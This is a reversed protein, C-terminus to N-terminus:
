RWGGAKRASSESHPSDKELWALLDRAFECAWRLAGTGVQGEALGAPRIGTQMYELIFAVALARELRAPVSHRAAPSPRWQELSAGSVAADLWSGLGGRDSV